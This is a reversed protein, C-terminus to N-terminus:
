EIAARDLMGTVNVGIWRLVSSSKYELGRSSLSDVSKLM